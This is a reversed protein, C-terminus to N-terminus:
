VALVLVHKGARACHLILDLHSHPPTLLIVADISTDALAGDLRTALPLRPYATRFAAQRESSPTYCAVIDVRDSLDALSMLHPKVVMGLGVVGVRHKKM